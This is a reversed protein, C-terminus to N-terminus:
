LPSGGVTRSRIKAYIEPAWSAIVKEHIKTGLKPIATAVDQMDKAFEETAPVITFFMEKFTNIWCEMGLTILTRVLDSRSPSINKELMWHLIELQWGPLNVTIIQRKRTDIDAQTWCKESHGRNGKYFGPKIDKRM